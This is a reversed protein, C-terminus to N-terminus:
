QALQIRNSLSQNGNILDMIRTQLMVAKKSAALKAAGNSQQSVPREFRYISTYLADKFIAQDAPKLRNYEAKAQPLHTYARRFTGHRRDYAYSSQSDMPMKMEKFAMNMVDNLDSVNSFSFKMVAIYTDFNVQHTVNTIGPIAALRDALASMERRIDAQSPVKYSNVSDLLMISALKTRSQSLNATLTVTGSGDERVSIDEIVQFCSTLCSCSLVVCMLRVLRSKTKIMSAKSLVPLYLRENWSM